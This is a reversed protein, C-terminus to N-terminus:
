VLPRILVGNASTHAVLLSRDVTENFAFVDRVVSRYNADDIRNWVPASPHPCSWATAVDGLNVVRSAIVFGMNTTWACVGPQWPSPPSAPATVTVKTIDTPLGGVLAATSTKAGQLIVVSAPLSVILDNPSAPDVALGGAFGTNFTNFSAPKWILKWTVGFDLSRSVGVGSHMCYLVSFDAANAVWMTQGGPVPGTGPTTAGMPNDGAAPNFQTDTGILKTMVATQNVFAILRSAHGPVGDFPIAMLKLPAFYPKSTPGGSGGTVSTTIMQAFFTHMDSSPGPATPVTFCEPQGPGVIPAGSNDVVTTANPGLITDSDNGLHDIVHVHIQPGGSSTDLTMAWALTWLTNAPQAGWGTIAISAGAGAPNWPYTSDAVGGILKRVLLQSKGGASHSSVFRIEYTTNNAAGQSILRVGYHLDTGVAVSTQDTGILVSGSWYSQSAAAQIVDNGTTTAPTLIVALGNTGDGLNVSSQATIGAVSTQTSFHAATSGGSTLPTWAQASDATGWGGAATTRHFKDNLNATSDPAALVEDWYPQGSGVAGVSSGPNAPVTGAARSAVGGGQATANGSALKRQGYAYYIRGGAVANDYGYGVPLLLGLTELVVSRGGDGSWGAIYDSYAIVLTEADSPTAGKSFTTLLGSVSPQATAFGDDTRWSGARGSTQIHTTDGTPIRIVAPGCDNGDPMFSAQAKSGGLWWIRSATGALVTTFRGQWPDVWGSISAAGNSVPQFVLAANLKAMLMSQGPQFPKAGSALLAVDGSSLGAAFTLTSGTAATLPQSIPVAPMAFGNFVKVTSARDINFSGTATVAVTTAGVSPTVTVITSAYHPRTCGVYLLANGGGDVPVHELGDSGHYLGISQWHCILADLPLPGVAPNSLNTFTPTSTLLGTIAWVGSNNCVMILTNVGGTSYWGFQHIRAPGTGAGLAVTGSDLRTTGAPMGPGTTNAAFSTWSPTYVQVLTGAGTSHDVSCRWLGNGFTGLYLTFPDTPDATLAGIYLDSFDAAISPTNFGIGKGIGACVQLANVQTGTTSAGPAKVGGAGWAVGSTYPIRWVGDRFSALYVFRNVADVTGLYGTQRPHTFGSATDGPIGGNPICVVAAFPPNGDQNLGQGNSGKGSQVSPPNVGNNDGSFVLTSGPGSGPPSWTTVFTAGFDTSEFIVSNGGASNGALVVVRGDDGTGAPFWVISAIKYNGSTSGDDKARRWSKGADQSRWIGGVDSGLLRIKPNSPCESIVNMFGAAEAGSARWGLRLGAAAMLGTM